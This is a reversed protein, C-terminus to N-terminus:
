KCREAIIQLSKREEDNKLIKIEFEKAAKCVSIQDDEPNTRIITKSEMVKSKLYVEYTKIHDFLKDRFGLFLVEIYLLGPGIMAIYYLQIDPPNAPNFINTAKILLGGTLISLLVSIIFAINCRLSWKLQCGRILRIEDDGIKKITVYESM